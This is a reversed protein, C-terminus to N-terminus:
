ELHRRLVADDPIALLAPDHAHRDAPEHVHERGVDPDAVVMASDRPECFAIGAPLVPAALGDPSDGSSLALNLQRYVDDHAFGFPIVESEVEADHDRGYSPHRPSAMVPGEGAHASLVPVVPFVGQWRAGVAVNGIVYVSRVHEHERGVEVVEQLLPVRLMHQMRLLQRRVHALVM